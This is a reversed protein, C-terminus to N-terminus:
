VSITSLSVKGLNIRRLADFVDSQELLRELKTVARMESGIYPQQATREVTQRADEPM